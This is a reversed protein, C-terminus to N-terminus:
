HPMFSYSSLRRGYLVTTPETARSENLLGNPFPSKYTIDNQSNELKCCSEEVFLSNARGKM